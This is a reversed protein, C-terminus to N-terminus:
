LYLPQLDVDPDPAACIVPQRLAPPPAPPHAAAATVAPQAPLSLTAASVSSTQKSAQPRQCETASESSALENAPATHVIDGGPSVRPRRLPRSLGPLAHESMNFVPARRLLENIEAATSSSATTVSDLEVGSTSFSSASTSSYTDSNTFSSLSSFSSSSGTFTRSSSESELAAILHGNTEAISASKRSRARVIGYARNTTTAQKTHGIISERTILHQHFTAFKAAAVVALLVVALGLVALLSAQVPDIEEVATLVTFAVKM